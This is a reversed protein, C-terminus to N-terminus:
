RTVLSSAVEECEAGLSPIILTISTRSESSSKLTKSWGSGVSDGPVVKVCRGEVWTLLLWSSDLTGFAMTSWHLFFVLRVSNKSDCALPDVGSTITWVRGGVGRRLWIEGKSYGFFFVFLSFFPFCADSSPSIAGLSRSGWLPAFTASLACLFIVSSPEPASMTTSRRGLSPAGSRKSEEM